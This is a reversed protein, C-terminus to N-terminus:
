GKILALSPAQGHPFEITLRLKFGAGALRLKHEGMEDFLRAGDGLMVPVSSVPYWVVSGFGRLGTFQTDIQDWDSHLAVDEPTGIALLRQASAAVAGSYSVDLQLSEGPALPQDLPVAAEHLQGTHDADSNLTAVQFAVDKGRVRIRDWSLSSSVQLPVRTLPAKSDNRVTLLARVAIQHVEVRLHVDLDFGTFTVAQREPDQATPAAVIQPGAPGAQTTTEGNADISRSFIV